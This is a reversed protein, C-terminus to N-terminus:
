TTEQHTLPQKDSRFRAFGAAADNGLLTASQLASEHALAGHLTQDSAINTAKKTMAIVFDDYETMEAAVQVARTMTAEADGASENALGIDVARQAGIVPARLLLEKARHAGVTRQLLYAAGADPIVGRRVFVQCFKVDDSCIVLDCAMALNFAAGYAIGSVAAVIPLRSTWIETLADHFATMLDAEAFRDTSDITDLISQVDGGASFNAGVGTLVVAGIRRDSAAAKLERTLAQATAISIANMKEPRDFALIRVRGEDRSSLGTM